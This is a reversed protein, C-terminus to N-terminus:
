RNRQGYQYKFKRKLLGAPDDPISKLWQENAQESENYESPKAPQAKTDEDEKEEAEQQEKAQESEKEKAEDNEKSQQESESEKESDSEPQQDSEKQQDEQESDGDKKKDGEQDEQQDKDKADNEDEGDGEQQEKKQEELAKEVQQKNHKADGNKPDIQLSKKYAEVAEPLKGSKALANGLNYLGSASTDGMLTEVAEEYKESKYQAAAKWQPDNFQDAAQQYDSNSYAQQAQQDSTAWLDNWELAYSTKPFPLLILLALTLLGKRFHLSALPLILLLLWPGKENWQDILLNSEKGGDKKEPAELHRLIAEIDSNDHSITRYVGNGANALKSLETSNLKPLIINNQEDKLFGGQATKVPAGEATGIGLISLHYGGLSEADDVTLQYDVGDTMLLIEGSQLGTQKLLEVAKALALSTNRGQVPMIETTLASLQSDITESDTTLPTVIFADGAYVLLATQGDKRQKLIDAIKYRAKSLRTPKIDGADMSRSLNLAIVLAADNRFVPSPLQEWTPGALALITLLCALVSTVFVSQSQKVPKEQLIFPLLEKDCVGSWNGQQLKNKLLLYFLVAAPLISLLWYPRIFHFEALNM